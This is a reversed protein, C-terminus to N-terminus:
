HILSEAMGMQILPQILQKYDKKKAFWIPHLGEVTISSDIVNHDLLTKIIALTDEAWTLSYNHRLTLNM